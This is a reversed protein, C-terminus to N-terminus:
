ASIQENTFEKSQREYSATCPAVGINHPVDLCQLKGLLVAYALHHISHNILYLLEREINSSFSHSYLSDLKIESIVQISTNNLPYNRLWHILIDVQDIAANSQTEEASGRERHNYDIEFKNQGFKVARFHDLIHRIHKGISSQTQPIVANYTPEDCLLVLQKIQMLVAINTEILSKMNLGINNLTKQAM